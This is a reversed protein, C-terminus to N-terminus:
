THKKKDIKTFGGAKLKLFFVLTIKQGYIKLQKRKWTCKINREM